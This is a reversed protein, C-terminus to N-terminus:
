GGAEPRSLEAILRRYTEFAPKATYDTRLLGFQCLEEPNGEKADRLAFFEYHTINLAARLQHISRVVTEIVECQRELPRSPATAWGNETVRIPVSAPIGGAALSVERFGRVVGEVARQLEEPPIRRFVDPFFDFGM